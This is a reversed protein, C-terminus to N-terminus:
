NLCYSYATSPLPLRQVFLNQGGRSYVESIPRCELWLEKFRGVRGCLSARGWPEFRTRYVAAHVWAPSELLCHEM